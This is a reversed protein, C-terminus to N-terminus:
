KYFMLNTDGYLVYALATPNGTSQYIERRARELTASVDAPGVQMQRQLLEYFLVSFKAAIQDNVPFLAGIYGSAGAGLVAPAWGDIFNGSHKAQGVDCANFFFFTHNSSAAEAMGRWTTTDLEGDELLIAFDGGTASLQGHGAFHVIGQPPHHFLERLAGMNGNVASYGNLRALGEIETAEGDLVRTGTYHPAIVFMKTMIEANPPSDRQRSDNSMYWRAVSYNLGLFSQQGTGDERVPRMLEWPIQPNDSYIQITRFDKGRKDVLAWFARRFADPAYNEYLMTGFGEAFERGHLPKTEVVESGRAARALNWSSQELWDAFGRSDRLKGTAPQLYPSLITIGDDKIILTLDPRPIVAELKPYEDAVAKSDAITQRSSPVASNLAPASSTVRIERAIRALYRGQYSYTVLVHVKSGTPLNPMARAYFTAPAPDGARPLEISGIAGGHSFQLGPAALAVDLKWYAAPTPKLRLVLAGNPTAEGKEIVIGQSKEQMTLSVQIRFETDRPVADPCDLMPYREIVDDPSAAGPDLRSPRKNLQEAQKTRELGLSAERNDFDCRLVAGYLFEADDYRGQRVFTEANHLYARISGSEVPCGQVKRKAKENAVESQSPPLNNAPPMATRWDPLPSKNGGFHNGLSGLPPPAHNTATTSGGNGEYTEASEAFRLGDLAARNGPQCGLVQNYESIARDYQGKSSNSEAYNLYRPIDSVEISCDRPRTAIKSGAQQSPLASDPIPGAPKPPAVISPLATADNVAPAAPVVTNPATPPPEPLQPAPAPKVQRTIQPAPKPRNGFLHSNVLYAIVILSAAVSSIALIRRASLWEPLLRHRALGIGWQL